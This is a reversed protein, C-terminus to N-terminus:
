AAPPSNLLHRRSLAVAMFSGAGLAGIPVAFVAIMIGFYGGMETSSILGGAWMSAFLFFVGGAIASTLVAIAIVLRNV